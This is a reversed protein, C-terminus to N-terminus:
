PNISSFRENDFSQAIQLAKRFLLGKVAHHLIHYDIFDSITLIQSCFVYERLTDETCEIEFSFRACGSIRVNCSKYMFLLTFKNDLISQFPDQVDQMHRTFTVYYDIYELKDGLIKQFYFPSTSCEEPLENLEELLKYYSVKEIYRKRM